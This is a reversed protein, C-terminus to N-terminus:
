AAVLAEGMDNNSDLAIQPSISLQSLADLLSVAVDFMEVGLLNNTGAGDVSDSLFFGVIDNPNTGDSPRFEKLNGRIASMSDGENYPATFAVIPLRAYGVYDAEVVQTMDTDPTFPSLMQKILGVWTAAPDMCGGGAALNALAILLQFRTLNM